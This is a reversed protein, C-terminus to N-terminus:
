CPTKERYTHEHIESSMENVGCVSSCWSPLTGAAAAVTYRAVTPGWGSRAGAKESMDHIM